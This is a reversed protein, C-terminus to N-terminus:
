EGKTKGVEVVEQPNEVLQVQDPFVAEKLIKVKVGMIGQPLLVSAKGVKVYKMAPDGASPMYGYSFKEFRARDTTLKGAIRIECGVAGAAAVRRLVVRAARRYKVGKELARCIMQAVLHPELDPNEVESVNVQPNELNFKERLIDQIERIRRGDPGIVLGPKSTYITVVLGMPVNLVKCGVYGGDKLYEKFFDDIQQHLIGLNLVRKYFILKRKSSM